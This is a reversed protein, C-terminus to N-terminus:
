RQLGGLLPLPHLPQGAASLPAEGVQILMVMGMAYHPLCKVGYLGPETLTVAIEQNVKGLEKKYEKEGELTLRTAITRTAM